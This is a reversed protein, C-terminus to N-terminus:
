RGVRSTRARGRTAARTKAVIRIVDEVRRDDREGEIRPLPQGRVGTLVLWADRKSVNM